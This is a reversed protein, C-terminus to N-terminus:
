FTSRSFSIRLYRDEVRFNHLLVLVTTAEDVCSMAVLMMQTASPAGGEAHSELSRVGEM